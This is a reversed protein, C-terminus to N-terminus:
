KNLKLLYYNDRDATSIAFDENEFNEWKKSTVNNEAITYALIIQSESNSKVKYGKPNYVDMLNMDTGNSVNGTIIQFGSPKFDTDSNNKVNVTVLMVKKSANPVNPKEGFNKNYDYEDLVDKCIEPSGVQFDLIKMTCGKYQMEQGMAYTHNKQSPFKDNIYVVRITIAIVLLIVLSLLIKSKRKM